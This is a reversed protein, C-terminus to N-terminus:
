RRYNFHDGVHHGRRQVHNDRKLAFEPRCPVNCAPAEAAPIEWVFSRPRLARRRVVLRYTENIDTNSSVRGCGRTRSEVPEAPRITCPGRTRIAHRQQPHGAPNLDELAETLTAFHQTKGNSHQAVIDSASRWAMCWRFASTPRYFVLLEEYEDGDDTRYDLEIVMRFARCAAWVQALFLDGLDFSRGAPLPKRTDAM